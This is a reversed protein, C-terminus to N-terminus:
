KEIAQLPQDEVLNPNVNAQLLEEVTIVHRHSDLVVRLHCSHGNRIVFPETRLRDLYLEYSPMYGRVFKVVSEDSMGDRRAILLAHEQDLRWRYVDSLNDADLHILCHFNGPGMFTDHYAQLNFNIDQLHELDFSGLTQLPFKSLTSGPSPMTKKKALEWKTKLVDSALPQFGICWGEFILVDIAPPQPIYRWRDNPIRDGEGNYSSKDFAPVSVGKGFALSAFFQAALVTDHTGPQGRTRLLPNSGSEQYVRILNAHDYYFDDLSVNAAKVGYQERLATTLSCAWTSKGSGQLGTLGIVFPLGVCATQHERIHPLVYDLVQGIFTPAITM